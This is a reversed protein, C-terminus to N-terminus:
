IEIQNLERLRIMGGLSFSTIVICIALPWLTNLEVSPDSVFLKTMMTVFGSLVMGFGVSHMLWNRTELMQAAIPRWILIYALPLITALILFMVIEAAILDYGRLGSLAASVPDFINIGSWPVIARACAVFAASAVFGGMLLSNVVYSTDVTQERDLTFYSM